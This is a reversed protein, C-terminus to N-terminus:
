QITIFAAASNQGCVVELEYTGSCLGKTELIFTKTNRSQEEGDLFWILDDAKEVGDVTFILKSENQKYSLNIDTIIKVSVSIFSNKNLLLNIRNIGEQITLRRSKGNYFETKKQTGNKNKEIIYASATVYVVTDIPIDDFVITLEQELPLTRNEQYDGLVSIVSIDLYMDKISVTNNQAYDQATNLIQNVISDDITFEVRANQNQLFTCASFLVTVFLFFSILFSSFLLKKQLEKQLLQRYFSRTM